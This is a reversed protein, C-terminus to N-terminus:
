SNTNADKAEKPSLAQQAMEIVHWLATSDLGEEYSFKTVFEAFHHLRELEELLKPLVTRALVNLEVFAKSSSQLKELELLEQFRQLDAENIM